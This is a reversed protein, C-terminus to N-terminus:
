LYRIIITKEDKKIKEEFLAIAILKIKFPRNDEKKMDILIQIVQDTSKFLIFPIENSINEIPLEISTIM